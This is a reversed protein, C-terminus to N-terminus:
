LSESWVSSSLGSSWPSWRCGPSETWGPSSVSVRRRQFLLPKGKRYVVLELLDGNEEEPKSQVSQFSREAGLWRRKRRRCWRGRELHQPCFKQRWWRWVAVMHGSPLWSFVCDSKAEKKKLPHLLSISVAYTEMRKNKVHTNHHPSNQAGFM